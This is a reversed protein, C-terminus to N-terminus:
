KLNIGYLEKKRGTVCLDVYSKLINAKIVSDVLVRDSPKNDGDYHKTAMWNNRNNITIYLNRDHEAGMIMVSTIQVNSFLEGNGKCVDRFTADYSLDSSVAFFFIKIKSIFFKYKQIM